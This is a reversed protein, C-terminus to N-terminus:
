DRFPLLAPLDISRRDMSGIGGIWGAGAAEELRRRLRTLPLPSPLAHVGFFLEGKLPFPLCCNWVKKFLKVEESTQIPTFRCFHPPLLCGYGDYLLTSICGRLCRLSRLHCRTFYVSHYLHRPFVASRKFGNSRLETEGVAVDKPQHSLCQLWFRELTPSLAHVAAHTLFM